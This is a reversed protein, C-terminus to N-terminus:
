QTRVIVTLVILGIIVGEKIDAQHHSELEPSVTFYVKVKQFLSEQTIATLLAIKNGM